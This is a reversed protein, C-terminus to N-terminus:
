ISTSPERRLSVYIRNGDASRLAEELCAVTFFDVKKKAENLNFDNSM